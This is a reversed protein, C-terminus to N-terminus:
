GKGYEEGFQNGQFERVFTPDSMAREREGYTLGDAKSVYTQRPDIQSKFEFWFM